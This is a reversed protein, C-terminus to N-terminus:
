IDTFFIYNNIDYYSLIYEISSEYNNIKDIIFLFDSKNLNNDSILSFKDNYSSITINDTINGIINKITSIFYSCTSFIVCNKINNFKVKLKLEKIINNEKQEYINISSKNLHKRCFGCNIERDDKMMYLLHNSYCDICYIHECESKIYSNKNSLCLGCYQTDNKKNINFKVIQKTNMILSLSKDLKIFKNKKIKKSKSYNYIPVILRSLQYLNDIDYFLQLKTLDFEINNSNINNLQIFLKIINNISLLNPNTIIQWVYGDTDFDCKYKFEKKYDYNWIKFVNEFGFHIRYKELLNDNIIYLKPGCPKIYYTENIFQRHHIYEEAIENYEIKKFNLFKKWMLYEKDGQIIFLKANKISLMECIRTNIPNDSIFSKDLLSLKSKDSMNSLVIGGKIQIKNLNESINNKKVNDEIKYSNEFMNIKLNDIKIDIDTNLIIMKEMLCSRFEKICIIDFISNEFDYHIYNKKLIDFFISCQLSSANVLFHKVYKEEFELYVKVNYKTHNRYMVRKSLRKSTLFKEITIKINDINPIGLLGLLFLGNKDQFTNNKYNYSINNTNSLYQYSHFLKM